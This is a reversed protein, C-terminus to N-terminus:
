PSNAFVSREGRASRDLRYTSINQQAGFTLNVCSVLEALEHQPRVRITEDAAGNQWRLVYVGRQFLSLM